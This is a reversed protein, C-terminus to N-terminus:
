RQGNKFAERKLRRLVAHDDLSPTKRETWGTWEGGARRLRRLGARGHLREEIEILPPEHEALSKLFPWVDRRPLGTWEVIEHRTPCPKGRHADIMKLIVETVEEVRIHNPTRGKM